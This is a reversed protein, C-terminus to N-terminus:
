EVSIYYSYYFGLYVILLLSIALCGMSLWFFISLDVLGDDGIQTFVTYPDNDHRIEVSVNDFSVKYEGTAQPDLYITEYSAVDGDEFCGGTM